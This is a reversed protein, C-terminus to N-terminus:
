RRLKIKQPIFKIVDLLLFFESGLNLFIFYDLNKIFFKMGFNRKFWFTLPYHPFILGLKNKNFQKALLLNGKTSFGETYRQVLPENIVYTDGYKLINLCVAADLGVFSESVWSKQIVETRFVSYFTLYSAKKLMKKIKQDLNGMFSYTDYSRISYLIKKRINRFKYDLSNKESDKTEGELSKIKSISCIYRDDADLIQINKLLFDKHWIDDVAAWVFYKTTAKQLLFYFNGWLGM